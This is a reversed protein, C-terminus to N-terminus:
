LAGGTMSAKLTRALKTEDFPVAGFREVMQVKADELDKATGSKLELEMECITDCPMGERDKIKGYDICAEMTSSGFKFDYYTREFTNSCLIVLSEDEIGKLVEDLLGLDDGDANQKFANLDLVGDSSKLNWEFHNHVGEKVEGKYKATFEYFDSDSSTYHRKRLSVGRQSLSRDPTDLYFNELTFPKSDTNELHSVFWSSSAASFLSERDKFALKVETEM